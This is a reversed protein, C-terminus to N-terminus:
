RNKHQSFLWERIPEISYALRWTNRHGGAGQRDTKSRFVSDKVYSTYYMPAKESTLDDYAFRYQDANWTGNWVARSIKTGQQQLKETISNFSPYAGADDESAMWWIRQNALPASANADWKGAVIYSGAFFNPYKINMATATMAGGSQGTVYIRNPDIKNEKILKQILHITTDMYKSTRWNDDAIIEDYQPALVFAPRKAQETPNAWIIAGLGQFLTAQTQDSTVGADHMFLVLPLPKDTKPSYLNYKLTKGTTNDTFASQTFSDVILNKVATTHLTTGDVTIDASAPKFQITHSMKQGAVWNPKGGLMQPKSNDPTAGDAYVDEQLSTNADDPSLEVIVYNGDEATTLNASKATFVKTVTRGAVKFDTADIDAQNITQPYRIAIHTLKVGDGYVQTIATAQMPVQNIKAFALSPLSTTVIAALSLSLLQRRTTM